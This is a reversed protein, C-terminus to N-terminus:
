LPAHRATALQPNFASAIADAAISMASPAPNFLGFYRPHAVHVQGRSMASVATTVAEVPSIPSSFEFARAARKAAERDLSPGIPTSADIAAYREIATEVARWLEERTTADLALPDRHM